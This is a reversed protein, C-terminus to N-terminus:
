WLKKSAWAEVGAGSPCKKSLVGLHENWIYSGFSYMKNEEDYRASSKVGNFWDVVCQTLNEDKATTDFADDSVHVSSLELDGSEVNLEWHLRGVCYAAANNIEDYPIWDNFLKPPDISQVINQPSADPKMLMMGKAWGARRWNFRDNPNLLRFPTAATSIVIKRSRLGISQVFEAEGDNCRDGFPQLYIMEAVGDDSLKLTLVTSFSGSGGGSTVYEIDYYNRDKAAVSYGVYGEWRKEEDSSYKEYIHFPDEDANRTEYLADKHREACEGVNLKQDFDGEIFEEICLPHFPGESHASLSVSLLCVLLILRMSIGNILVSFTGLKTLFLSSSSVVEATV